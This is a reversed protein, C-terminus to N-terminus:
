VMAVAAEARLRPPTGHDALTERLREPGKETTKWLQINDSSPKNCAPAFATALTLLVAVRCPGGLARASAPLSHRTPKPAMRASTLWASIAGDLCQRSTARRIVDRSSMRKTSSRTLLAPPAAPEARAAKPTATAMIKRSPEPASALAAGSSSGNTPPREKVPGVEGESAAM